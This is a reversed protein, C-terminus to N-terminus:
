RNSRVHSSYAERTYGEQRMKSQFEEYEKRARGLEKPDITGDPNVISRIETTELSSQFITVFNEPGYIAEQSIANQDLSVQTISESIEAPDWAVGDDRPSADTVEVETMTEEDSLSFQLRVEATGTCPFLLFSHSCEPCYTALQTLKRQRNVVGSKPHSENIVKDALYQSVRPESAISVGKSCWDCIYHDNGEDTKYHFQKGEFLEEVEGVTLHPHVQTDPRM